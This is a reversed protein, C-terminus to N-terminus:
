FWPLNNLCLHLLNWSSQSTQQEMIPLKVLAVVNSMPLAPPFAQQTKKLVYKILLQQLFIVALFMHSNNVFSAYIIFVNNAYRICRIIIIIVQFASLKTFTYCKHNISQAQLLSSQQTNALNTRIQRPGHFVCFPILGTNLLRSWVVNPLLPGIVHGFFSGQTGSIYDSLFVWFDIPVIFLLPGYWLSKQMAQASSRDAKPWCWFNKSCALFIEPVRPLLFAKRTHVFHTDQAPEPLRDSLLIWKM